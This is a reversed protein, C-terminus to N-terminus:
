PNAFQLNVEGGDTPIETSTRFTQSRPRAEADLLKGRHQAAREEAIWTLTAIHKGAAPGSGTPLTYRGDTVVAVAIPGPHGDPQLTLTGELVRQGDVTVTGDIAPRPSPGGCGCCLVGAVIIFRRSARLTSWAVFPHM